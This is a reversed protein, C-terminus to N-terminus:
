WLLIALLIGCYVGLRPWLRRALEVKAKQEVAAEECLTALRQLTACATDRPELGVQVLGQEMEQRLTPSLAVPLPLEALSGCSRIGMEAFEPYIAARRLLEEGSLAQYRLLTQLYSLLRELTHLKQWAEYYHRCVAFGAGTGASVVLAAGFVRLFERM